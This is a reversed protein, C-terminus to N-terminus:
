PIERRAFLACDCHGQRAIDDHHPACPCVLDHGAAIAREIPACPCYMKGHVALNHALGDVTRSVVEPEAYLGYPGKTVYRRVFREVRELARAKGPPDDVIQAPFDADKSERDPESM